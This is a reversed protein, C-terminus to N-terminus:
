PTSAGFSFPCRISYESLHAVNPETAILLFLAVPLTAKLKTFVKPSAAVPNRLGQPQDDEPAHVHHAEDRRAADLRATPKTAIAPDGRDAEYHDAGARIGAQDGPRALLRRRPLARTNRPHPNARTLSSPAKSDQGTIM